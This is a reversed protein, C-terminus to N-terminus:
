FAVVAPDIANGGGMTRLNRLKSWPDIIVHRTTGDSGAVLFVGAAKLQLGALMAPSAEAGNHRLIVDGVALGAFHAPSNASIATVRNAPDLAVGLDAFGYSAKSAVGRSPGAVGLASPSIEFTLPLHVKTGDRQVTLRAQRGASRDELLFALDGATTLPQGDVALLIDGARVGASDFLGERTVHEVLAGRGAEGGLAEALKRDMDRLRLGLRVDPQVKGSRLRTICRQLDATAVAYSIGIYFRSGDAIRSNVGLLRGDADVLPGGSSGPNVAADHQLFLLPVKPDVQRPLASIIGRTVTGQTGLPAGIAFVADGVLPAEGPTLGQGRAENLAILAIDRLHDVGRVPAATQSGDAFTVIVRERHGVVHANTVVFAGGDYVFGSGLFADDATDSRLVVTAKLAAELGAGATAAVTSIAVLLIALFARAM